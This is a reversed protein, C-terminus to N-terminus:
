KIEGFFREQKNAWETQAARELEVIADYQKLIDPYTEAIWALKRQEFMQRVTMEKIDNRLKLMESQVQPDLFPNTKWEGLEQDKPQTM